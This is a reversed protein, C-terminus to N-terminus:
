VVDSTYAEIVAAEARLKKAWEPATEACETAATEREDVEQQLIDLLDAATLERRAAETGGVGVSLNEVAGARATTPVAEANDIAGLASRLARVRPMDRDRMAPTLDRRIRDRITTATNM